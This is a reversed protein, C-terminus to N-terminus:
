GRARLVVPIPRSLLREFRYGGGPGMQAHIRIAETTIARRAPWDFQELTAISRRWGDVSDRM